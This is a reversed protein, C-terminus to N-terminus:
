SLPNLYRFARPPLSAQPPTAALDPGSRSGSRDSTQVQAEYAQLRAERAELQHVADDVEAERRKIRVQENQVESM